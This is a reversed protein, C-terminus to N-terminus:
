ARSEMREATRRLVDNVGSWSKITVRAGSPATESTTWYACVRECYRDTSILEIRECFDLIAKIRNDLDGRPHGKPPCLAIDACFAGSIREPRRITMVAADAQAKWKTYGPATYVRGASSKGGSRWIRNVSPPFPLHLVIESM